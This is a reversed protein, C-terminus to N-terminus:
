RLNEMMRRMETARQAYPTGALQASTESSIAGYWLRGADIALSAGWGLGIMLCAAAALGGVRVFAIMRETRRDSEDAVLRLVARATFVAADDEAAVRVLWGAIFAPGTREVLFRQETLEAILLHRRVLRGLAPNAIIRRALESQRDADAPGDILHSILDADTTTIFPAVANM